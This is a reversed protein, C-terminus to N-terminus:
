FLLQLLSFFASCDIIDSLIGLGVSVMLLSFAVIKRWGLTLLSLALVIWM